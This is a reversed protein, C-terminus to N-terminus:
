AYVDGRSSFHYLIINGTKPDPFYVLRFDGIRYRWFGALDGTLPKETDGILAMPADAIKSLAELIRGQLKRDTSRLDDKFTKAFGVFWPPPRKPNPASTKEYEEHTIPLSARSIPKEHIREGYAEELDSEISSPHNLYVLEKGISAFTEGDFKPKKLRSSSFVRRFIRALLM